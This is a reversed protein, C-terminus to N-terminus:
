FERTYKKALQKAREFQVDDMTMNLNVKKDPAYHGKIKNIEGIAKLVCQLAQYNPMGDKQVELNVINTLKDMVWELSATAKDIHNKQLSKLYTQGEPKKLLKCAVVEAGKNSYGAQIAAQSPNMKGTEQMQNIIINFFDFQRQTLGSPLKIENSM